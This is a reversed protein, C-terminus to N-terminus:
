QYVVSVYLKSGAKPILNTTDGHADARSHENGVHVQPIVLELKQRPQYRDHLLGGRERPALSESAARM